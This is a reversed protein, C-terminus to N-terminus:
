SRVVLLYFIFSKIQTNGPRTDKFEVLGFNVIEVNIDKETIPDKTKVKAPDM